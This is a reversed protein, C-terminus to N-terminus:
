SIYQTECPSPLNDSRFYFQGHKFSVSITKWRCKQRNQQTPKGPAHVTPMLDDDFLQLFLYPHQFFLRAFTRTKCIVM